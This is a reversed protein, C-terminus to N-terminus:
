EGLLKNISNYVYEVKINQMCELNTPCISKYCPHCKVEDTPKICIHEGNYPMFKTCHKISTPGFITVTNTGVAAAIHSPGSDNGVFVCSHKLINKLMTLDTKDVYNYISKVNKEIYLADDLELKTGILVVEFKNAVLLKILQLYRSVGWQKSKWFESSGTSIAVLKKKTKIISDGNVPLSIKKNTDESFYNNIKNKDIGSKLLTYSIPKVKIKKGILKQWINAASNVVKNYKSLLVLMHSLSNCHLNFVIDYKKERILKISELYNSYIIYDDFYDTDDYLGKGIGTTVFVIHADKYFYRIARFIPELTVLDGLASFRIVLINM